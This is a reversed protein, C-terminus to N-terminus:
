EYRLASNVPIAAARRALPATVACVVALGLPAILVVAWWAPYAFEDAGGALEVIGRFAALGLPIGALAAVGGLLGQAVVFSGAVQRPTLGVAKLLGLDRVRERVGLLMTAVLNTLGIFLVIAGAGYVLPRMRQAEGADDDVPDWAPTEVGEILAPAPPPNANVKFSAEMGLTAVVVVVTLTLSLATLTARGPHVFADRAGIAVPVPLGLREALRGLRSRRRRPLDSVLSATTQRGARLAPALTFVVISALVIGAVGGITAVTLSPTESADLLSASASVFFPTAITGLVLGIVTGALGLALQEALMVVAVQGPKLGTAKLLGIQRRQAAVRGGILTALVAGGGLLFFVSFVSLAVQAAHANDAAAVREEKWDSFRAEDGIRRAATAIFRETAEPDAIRVGLLAAWRSQDPQVRELTGPLGFAVGPQSVPYAEGQSVVGIGTVRVPVKSGGVVLRDGPRLKHFRAFSRELVIGGPEPGAGAVLIPAGVGDRKTKLGILRLGFTRGELQVSSFVVPVVGTSATVGPLQEIPSLDQGGLFTTAIVHPAHTAEFTREWPRDGVRGVGFSLTLAAAAAAVVLVTLAAQLSRRRMGSFALKFYVRTM